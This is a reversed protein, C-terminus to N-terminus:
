RWEPAYDRRRFREEIRISITFLAFVEFLAIFAYIAFRTFASPSPFCAIGEDICAHVMRELVIHERWIMAFGAGFLIISGAVNGLTVEGKRWIPYAILFAVIPPVIGMLAIWNWSLQTLTTPGMENAEERL